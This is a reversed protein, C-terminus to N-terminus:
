GIIVHKTQATKPFFWGQSKQLNQFQGQKVWAIESNEVIRKPLKDCITRGFMHNSTGISKALLDYWM